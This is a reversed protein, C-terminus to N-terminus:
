RLATNKFRPVQAVGSLNFIHRRDWSCPGKDYNISAPDLYTNAVNMTGGGHGYRDTTLCHSWTYNANFSVGKALRRQISTLLANYSQTGGDNVGDVSGYFGGQTPNTLNLVRRQNITNTCAAPYPAAIGVPCASTLVSPNLANTLWLHATESGIYSATVLWPVGIQKQVTLNWSNM